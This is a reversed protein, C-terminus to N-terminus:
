RVTIHPDVLAVSKSSTVSNSDVDAGVDKEDRQELAKGPFIGAEVLKVYLEEKIVQKRAVRSVAINYFDAILLLDVKKCNNFEELSPSLTFKVLDLDM